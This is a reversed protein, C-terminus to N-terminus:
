RKKGSLLIYQPINKESSKLSTAPSPIGVMLRFGRRHPPPGLNSSRGCLAEPSPNSGLYVSGFDTTRGKSSGSASHPVPATRRGVRKAMAEALRAM